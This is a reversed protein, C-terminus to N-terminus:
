GKRTFREDNSIQVLLALNCISITGNIAEKVAFANKDGPIFSFQSELLNLWELVYVVRRSFPTIYRADEEEPRKFDCHKDMPILAKIEDCAAQMMKIDPLSAKKDLTCCATVAQQLVELLKIIQDKNYQM